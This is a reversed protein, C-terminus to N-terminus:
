SRAAIAELFRAGLREETYEDPVAAPGEAAGCADLFRPVGGPAPAAPDVLFCQPLPAALQWVASERGTVVLTPKRAPIYEFLKSPIAAGSASLLLLGDADAVRQLLEARAVPPEARVEWGFHEFRPMWREVSELDAPELGGLLTVVGALHRDALGGHLLSLLADVTRAAHSGVFRGAHLLELRHRDPRGRAAPFVSAPPYGNTLVVMRDALRPYRRALLARWQASTVFVVSARRMIRREMAGELMRRLGPGAISPRLPEDLWGDRLDLVLRASVAAALREAGVLVSEPPSSAVVWRARQCERRVLPHHAARLAWGVSPEPLLLAYALRRRLPNPARAAAGDSGTSGDRYLGLRDRITVTRGWPADAAADASGGRVLVVRVGASQFWRLFREVRYVGVHGAHGHFPAVIVATHQAGM